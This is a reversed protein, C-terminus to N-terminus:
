ALEMILENKSIFYGKIKSNKNFSRSISSPVVSIFNAASIVSDCIKVLKMDKDYIYVKKSNLKNRAILDEKSKTKWLNIMRESIKNKNSVSSKRGIAKERIKDKTEESHKRGFTGDGGDTLNYGFPNKSKSEVIWLKEKEKLEEINNATDIVEGTFNDEGYKRISKHIPFNSNSKSEYIHHRFRTMYGQITIGIYSKGNVTNTIKYVEFM